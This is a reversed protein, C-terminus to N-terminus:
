RRADVVALARETKAYMLIRADCTVLRAGFHRATAMLIQDSPDKHPEGPLITSGVAIDPTLPVLQIGPAQLAANIWASPEASLVIRKRKSLMAVEWLSIASVYLNGTKSAQRVSAIASRSLKEEEQQLIWIWVHTDLLLPIRSINATPLPTGSWM